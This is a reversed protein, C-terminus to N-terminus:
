NGGRRRRRIIIASGLAAMVLVAGIVALITLDYSVAFSWSAVATNGAVDSITLNVTHLGVQLSLNLSIGSPTATANAAYETGDVILSISGLDLIYNDSYNCAILINQGFIASNNAPVASTHNISPPSTDITFSWTSTAENGANDSISLSVTHPGSPLGAFAHQAFGSSLDLNADVESSDVLMVFSCPDIGSVPDYCEASITGITSNFFSAPSPSVWSIRPPSTDITFSWTSTAENGANDSISLSVTHPGDSLPSEPSHLISTDTLTSAQTVDVGDLSLVASSTNAGSLADSFNILIPVLADSSMSGNLPSSFSLDPPSNDIILDFTVSPLEPLQEFQDADLTLKLAYSGDEAGSPVSIHLVFGAADAADVENVGSPTISYIVGSPLSGVKSLNASLGTIRFGTSLNVPITLYSGSRATLPQQLGGLRVLALTGEVAESASDGGFLVNHLLITHIGAETSLSVWDYSGGDRTIRHFIGKRWYSSNEPTDTADWVMWSSNISFLDIDTLEDSWNCIAFAAVIGPDHPLEVLWIKWDGSEYRWSWDFLGAVSYPDYLLPAGPDPTLRVALSDGDIVQPVAVSVPMAFTRAESGGGSYNALILGEYVGQSATPPISMTATVASKTGPALEVNSSNLSIWGWDSRSWLRLELHYPVPSSGTSQWVLVVPQGQFKSSPYSVAAAISNGENEGYTVLWAEDPTCEGDSNYDIWDLVFIAFRRDSWYDDDDDFYTFPYSLQFTMLDASAPMQVVSSNLYQMNGVGFGYKPNNRWEEPLDATSGNITIGGELLSYCQPELAVERQSATPNILMLTANTSSGPSMYGAFWSPDYLTGLPLMSPTEGLSANSFAWTNSLHQAINAYSAGSELLIGSSGLALEVAGLCDVRGSGQLFADYGLDVASSKIIAKLAQPDLVGGSASLYAHLVLAAVGATMPCSMSTGSFLAYAKMGSMGGYNVATPVYDAMGVNVVDPKVYGAPAPGRGSWPIVEDAYGGAFGYESCSFNLSTTAGVTLTLLSCAPDTVTGYGPAGNGSSQLFLTGPYSPDIYHPISLCDQLCCIISYWPYGYLDRMSASIGWSNSVIDARHEGTYGWVGYVTGYSEVDYSTLNVPLLDFGCAWLEGEIIDGMTLSTVSMITAGPAVGTFWYPNSVGTALSTNRAAATNACMSGHGDMDVIFSVYNGLPDIPLLVRGRDSTNPSIGWVDLFRGLSGASIDFIGDHTLDRAAILSGTVTLPAEDSFRYDPDQPYYVSSLDVYATEFVSDGDKDVVLVPYISEYTGTNDNYLQVMVGFHCPRGAPVIGTVDMDSPFAGGAIESYSYSYGWLYITPDLGRTKIFVRGGGGSYSQLTTNTLALCQADADISSPVGDGDRSTSDNWYGLGPSAFDVGTDIIAITIGSGDIGIAWVESSGIISSAGPVTTFVGGSFADHSANSGPPQNCIVACLEDFSPKQQRSITAGGCASGIGGLPTDLGVYSLSKCRILEESSGAALVGTAFRYGFLVPSLRLNLFVGDLDDIITELPLDKVTAIVRCEGKASLLAPDVTPSTAAIQASNSTGESVPLFLSSSVLFVLLALPLNIRWM